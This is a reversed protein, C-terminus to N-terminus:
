NEELGLRPDSVVFSNTKVNPHTFLVKSRSSPRGLPPISSPFLNGLLPSTGTDKHMTSSSM